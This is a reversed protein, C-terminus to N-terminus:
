QAKRNLFRVARQAAEIKHVAADHIFRMAKKRDQVVGHGRWYHRGLFYLSRHHGKETARRFWVLAEVFEGAVYAIYGLSFMARTDGHRASVRYWKRALDLDREVGFGNLYFWGMALAADHHGFEAAEANLAFARVLDQEVGLGDLFRLSEDYLRSASVANSRSQGQRRGTLQEASRHTHKM